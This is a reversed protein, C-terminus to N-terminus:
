AIETFSLAGLQKNVDLDLIKTATERICREFTTPWVLDFCNNIFQQNHQQQQQKENLSQQNKYQQRENESEFEFISKNNNNNNVDFLLNMNAANLLFREDNSTATTTTPATTVMVSGVNAAITNNNVSSTNNNDDNISCKAIPDIMFNLNDFKFVLEDCNVIAASDIGSDTSFDSSCRSYASTSRTAADAAPENSLESGCTEILKRSIENISETLLADATAPLLPPLTVSAAQLSRNPSTPGANLGMNTAEFLPALVASTQQIASQSFFDDAINIGSLIDGYGSDNSDSLCGNTTTRSGFVDCSTDARKTADRNNDPVNRNSGIVGVRDARSLAATPSMAGDILPTSSCCSSSAEASSVHSPSASTSSSTSSSSHTRASATSSDSLSRRLPYDWISRLPDCASCFCIGHEDPTDGCKTIKVDNLYSNSKLCVSQLLSRPKCNQQSTNATFAHTDIPQNHGIYFNIFKPNFANENVDEPPNLYAQQQLQQHQRSLMQAMGLGSMHSSKCEKDTATTASSIADLKLFIGNTAPKRDKKRRKRPKIIRPLATEGSDTNEKPTESATPIEETAPTTSNEKGRTSLAAPASHQYRLTSRTPKDGNSKVTGTSTASTFAHSGNNPMSWKQASNQQLQQQQKHLLLPVGQAHAALQSIQSCSAANSNRTMYLTPHHLNYTQEIGGVTALKQHPVPSRSLKRQVRQRQNANSILPIGACEHIRQPNIVSTTSLKSFNHPHTSPTPATNSNSQDSTPGSRSQSASAYGNFHHPAHTSQQHLTQLSGLYQHYQHQPHSHPGTTPPLQLQQQNQSQNLPLAQHRGIGVNKHAIPPHATANYLSQQTLWHNPAPSKFAQQQQILHPPAHFHHQQQQQHNHHHHQQQQQHHLNQQQQAQQQHPHPPLHSHLHASQTLPYPPLSRLAATNAANELTCCGSNANPRM